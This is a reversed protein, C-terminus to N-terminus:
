SGTDARQAQLLSIIRGNRGQEQLPRIRSRTQLYGTKSPTVRSHDTKM